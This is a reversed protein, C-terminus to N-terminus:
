SQFGNVHKGAANDPCLCAIRFRSPIQYVTECGPVRPNTQERLGKRTFLPSLEIPSSSLASAAPIRSGSIAPGHM